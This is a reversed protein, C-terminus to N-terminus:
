CTPAASRSRRLSATRRSAAGSPQASGGRRGPTIVSVSTLAEPVVRAVLCAHLLSGLVRAAMCTSGPAPLWRQPRGRCWSLLSGDPQPLVLVLCGPYHGALEEPRRTCAIESFLVDALDLRSGSLDIALHEDAGRSVTSGGRVTLQALLGDPGFGDLAVLLGTEGSSFEAAVQYMQHTM